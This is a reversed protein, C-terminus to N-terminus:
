QRLCDLMQPVQYKKQKALRLLFLTFFVIYVTFIWTNWIGIKFDPILSM